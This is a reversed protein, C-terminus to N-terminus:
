CDNIAADQPFALDNPASTELQGPIGASAICAAISGILLPM